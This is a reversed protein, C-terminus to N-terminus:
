NVKGIMVLAPYYGVNPNALRVLYRTQFRSRGLLLPERGCATRKQTQTLTEQGNKLKPAWQFGNCGKKRIKRGPYNGGSHGYKGFTSSLINKHKYAYM